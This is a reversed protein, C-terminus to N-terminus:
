LDRSRPLSLRLKGCVVIVYARSQFFFGILERSVNQELIKKIKKFYAIWGISYYERGHVVSAMIHQITVLHVKNRPSITNNKESDGVAYM